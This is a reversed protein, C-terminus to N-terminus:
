KLIYYTARKQGIRLLLGKDVLDTLDRRLTNPSADPCLAQLDRNTIRPHSQLFALAKEQRPTLQLHSYLNPPPGAGVLELAHSPITVSFGAATEAFEPASLGEQECVALMHGIGYGTGQMLGLETLTQVLIPNRSFREQQLNKVSIPGPLRGPSHIELRDSYMLLRITDGHISYDRHAVANIIAERVAPLPYEPIPDRDPDGIRAGRRMNAAVFAEARRIQEPLAGRIDERVFEDSMAAGAYRIATIRASSLWRQPKRGFLLMGALTPVVAQGSAALCGRDILLDRVAVAPGLGLRDRYIQLADEDLDNLSADSPTQREFGMEGREWLLSRLETSTLARNSRGSRLLYRGRLSYVDSLGAPVQAVCLTRDDLQVQDPQRLRLPPSTLFAAASMRQCAEEADGCGVIKRGATVGLIILGGHANALAMMMEAIKRASARPSLLVVGDGPGDAIAEAVSDILRPPSHSPRMM